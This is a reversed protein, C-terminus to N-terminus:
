RCLLIPCDTSRMVRVTTSGLIIEQLRSHGYAGMVLLDFRNDEDNCVELIGRAHDSGETAITEVKLDYDKGLAVKAKSLTGLADEKKDAVCVVTVPLKLAQAMGAGNQIAKDAFSSGDYAILIKSFPKFERPTILVPKHTQRVVFEVTTGLFVDHWEAHVGAKGMAILDCSDASKTIEHSVIGERIERKFPVGGQSCKGELLNLYTDAQSELMDRITQHFTGYPVMGGISTGIDHILPGALVKIDKVFLGQISAQNIRAISVAYDAAALSNESGDTPVLIQKIM